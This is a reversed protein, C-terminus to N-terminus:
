QDDTIGKSNESHQQISTHKVPAAVANEGLAIPEITTAGDGPFSWIGEPM